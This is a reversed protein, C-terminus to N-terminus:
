RICALQSCHIIKTTVQAKTTIGAFVKISQRFPCTKQWQVEELRLRFKWTIFHTYSTSRLLTANWDIYNVLLLIRLNSLHINTYMFVKRTTKTVLLKNWLLFATTWFDGIYSNIVIKISKLWKNQLYFGSEQLNRHVICDNCCQTCRKNKM